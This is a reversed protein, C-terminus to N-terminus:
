WDLGFRMICIKSILFLDKKRNEIALQGLVAEVLEPPIGNEFSRYLHVALAELAIRQEDKEGSAAYLEAVGVIGKKRVLDLAMQLTGRGGPCERAFHILFLYENLSRESVLEGSSTNEM